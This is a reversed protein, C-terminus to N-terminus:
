NVSHGIIPDGNQNTEAHFEVFCNALSPYAVALTAANIPSRPRKHISAWIFLTNKAFPYRKTLPTKGSYRENEVYLNSKNEAIWNLTRLDKSYRPNTRPTYKLEITAIVSRSNCVILDPYIRPIPNHSDCRIRPEIFTRRNSPLESLLNSWLSAQLSRESNILCDRYHNFVSNRWAKLLQTRFPVRPQM